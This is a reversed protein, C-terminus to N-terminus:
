TKQSKIPENRKKTDKQRKKDDKRNRGSKGAYVKELERLKEEKEPIQQDLKKIQRRM